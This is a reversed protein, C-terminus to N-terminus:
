KTNTEYRRCLSIKEYQIDGVFSTITLLYYGSIEKDDRDKLEIEEM